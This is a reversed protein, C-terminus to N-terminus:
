ALAEAGSVIETIETTIAAQRARNYQLTLTDIIDDANRTANEMATMRAALEGAATQLFAQLLQTRLYLPLLKGLLEAPAPEYSYDAAESADDREPVSIPVIQTFRPIQVLTNVFKNAVLYVADYGHEDFASLARTSLGRVLEMKDMKTHGPVGELFPIQRGKMFNIAKTGYPVIDVEIGEKQKEAVFYMVQRMLGNNFAGCLGRDATMAFILIKSVKERPQLLPHSVESGAGEAIRMLAETLKDEYPKAANAQDTARKLKAGAVLKMAATIQRTKKIGVIRGKLEKLNAM